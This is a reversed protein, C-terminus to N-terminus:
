VLMEFATIWQNEAFNKEVRDTYEKKYTAIQNNHKSAYTFDTQFLIQKMTICM